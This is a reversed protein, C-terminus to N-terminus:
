LKDDLLIFHKLKGSAATVQSYGPYYNGSINSGMPRSALKRVLFEMEGEDDRRKMKKIAKSNSVSLYLMAALVNNEPSEIVIEPNETMGRLQTIGKKIAEKEVRRYTYHFTIQLM